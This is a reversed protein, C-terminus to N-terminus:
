DADCISPRGQRRMGEATAVIGLARKGSNRQPSRILSARLSSWNDVVTM